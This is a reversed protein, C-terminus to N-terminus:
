WLQISALKPPYGVFTMVLDEYTDLGINTQGMVTVSERSKTSMHDTTITGVLAVVKSKPDKPDPITPITLEGKSGVVASNGSVHFQLEKNLALENFDDLTIGLPLAGMFSSLGYGVATRGSSTATIALVCVICGLLLKSATRE